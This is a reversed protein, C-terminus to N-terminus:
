SKYLKESTFPTKSNLPCLNRVGTGQSSKAPGLYYNNPSVHTTLKDYVVIKTRQNYEQRM